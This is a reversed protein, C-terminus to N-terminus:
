LKEPDKKKKSESTADYITKISKKTFTKKM